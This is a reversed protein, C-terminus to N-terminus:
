GIREALGSARGLTNNVAFRLVEPSGCIVVARRSRTMATYLLERTLLPLPAEPLLLLVKEYESGQAKHVTLAYALGLNDDLTEPAVIQWPPGQESARRFVAVPRGQGKIAIMLGQDGNWLGREYDNRLIMVPTGAALGDGAHDLDRLLDNTPNAGTARERTVCLIRQRQSHAFLRQLRDEDEPSFGQDQPTYEHQALEKADPLTVHDRHWSQLLAERHQEPVLEVGECRVDEPRERRALTSLLTDADGGRVAAACPHIASAASSTRFNTNLRVALDGLDRFVAGAAVSPLQDADGLLILVADERLARLLGDMLVLDIMSGEDAIIALAPLRHNEHHTFRGASPSYGLLRHLTQAQPCNARLAHDELSPAQLSALGQRLSEQLRNAAKGTPATLALRDAPIGLRVLGRAIALAMTTKGTGPGGSIVALRLSLARVLAARQEPSLAPRSSAAVQTAVTLVTQAAPGPRKCLERIATAVRTECALVRQHYLYDGDLILPKREGPVGVLAPASRLLAVDSAAVPMRTHGQSAHIVSRAILRVLASRQAEDMAGALQGLQWVLYAEEEGLDADALEAMLGSPYASVPAVRQRATGWPSLPSDIRM